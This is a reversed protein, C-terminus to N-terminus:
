FSLGAPCTDVFNSCTNESDVQMDGLEVNLEVLEQDPVILRQKKFCAHFLNKRRRTFTWRIAELRALLRGNDRAQERGRHTLPSDDQGAARGAINHECEGHRIIYLTLNPPIM